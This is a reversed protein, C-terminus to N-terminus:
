NEKNQDSTETPTEPTAEPAAKEEPDPPPASKTGIQNAEEVYNLKLHSVVEEVYRTEDPLLNGRTKALLMDLLDISHAAMNLDAEMKGTIPNIIKGLGQLAGMQFSAVLELLLFTHKQNKEEDSM